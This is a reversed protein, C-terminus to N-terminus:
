RGSAAGALAKATANIIAESTITASSTADVGQVGQARVIKASTDTLASYFQKEQHKTVEVATIRGGQVTVAVEVQGAYGLSSAQYTGDPVRTPDCLEFLKVAEMNARARQQERQIRKQYRGTAPAALAREYYRIADPIMQNTRCADGAMVYFLAHVGKDQPMGRVFGETLRIARQPEGIDGWIKILGESPSTRELRDLLAVAM